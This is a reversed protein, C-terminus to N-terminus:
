VESMQLFAQRHADYEPHKRSDVIWMYDNVTVEGFGFDSSLRASLSQMARNVCNRYLDKTTTFSNLLFYSEAVKKITFEPSTYTLKNNRDALVLSMINVGKYDIINANAAFSYIVEQKYFTKTSTIQGTKDKINEVREKVSVSEPLLDELKITVTIHGDYALKRWGEITVNKEPTMEQLFPQMLRTGEVKVDFTHYSSDLHVNPLSRYQVTFKYKDLDVKKQAVVAIPLLLLFFLYYKKM